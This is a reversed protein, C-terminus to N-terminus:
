PVSGVQLRRVVSLCVSAAWRYGGYSNVCACRPCTCEKPLTSVSLCENIDLCTENKTVPDTHSIFGSGCTCYYGAFTEKCVSKGNVPGRCRAACCAMRRALNCCLVASRAGFILASPLWLGGTSPEGNVLFGANCCFWISGGGGGVYDRAGFFPFLLRPSV